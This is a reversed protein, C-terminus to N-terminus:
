GAGLLHDYAYAAAGVILCVLAIVDAAFVRGMQANYGGSSWAFYNFALVSVFGAAFALPQIDPRFAAM